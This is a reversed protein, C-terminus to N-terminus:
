PAKKTEADDQGIRKLLIDAAMGTPAMFSPANVAFELVGAPDDGDFDFSIWHPDPDGPKWNWTM